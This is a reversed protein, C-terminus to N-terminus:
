GHSKTIPYLFLYIVCNALKTTSCVNKVYKNPIYNKLM